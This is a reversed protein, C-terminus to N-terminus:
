TISEEHMEIVEVGAEVFGLFHSYVCYFPRHHDNRSRSRSLSSNQRKADGIDEFLCIRRRRPNEGDGERVCTDFCHLSLETVDNSRLGVFHANM